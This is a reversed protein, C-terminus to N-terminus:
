SADRFIPWRSIKSLDASVNPLASFGLRWRDEDLEVVWGEDRMRYLHGRVVETREKHCCRVLDRTSHPALRLKDAIICSVKEAPDHAPGPFLLRVERCHVARIWRALRAALTWLMWHQDPPRQVKLSMLCLAAAFQWAVPEHKRLLGALPEMRCWRPPRWKRDAQDLLDAVVCNPTFINPTELYRLDLLHQYIGLMMPSGPPLGAESTPLRDAPILWGYCLIEEPGRDRMMKRFAKATSWGHLTTRLGPGENLSGSKLLPGHGSARGIARYAPDGNLIVLRDRGFQNPEVAVRGIRAHVDILLDVDVEEPKPAPRKERTLEPCWGGILEELEEHNQTNRRRPESAALEAAMRKSKEHWALLPSLQFRFWRPLNENPGLFTVSPRGAKPTKEGERRWSLRSGSVGAGALLIQALPVVPSVGALDALNLAASATLRVWDTEKAPM